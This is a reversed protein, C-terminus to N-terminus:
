DGKDAASGSNTPNSQYNWIRVIEGLSICWVPDASEVRLGNSYVQRVRQVIDAGLFKCTFRPRKKGYGNAFEVLDYRRKHGNKHLLRSKIWKSCVRFEHSKEGTVMVEFAQRHLTLRLVKM